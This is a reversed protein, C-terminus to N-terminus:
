KADTTQEQALPALSRAQFCQLKINLLKFQYVAFIHMSFNFTGSCKLGMSM